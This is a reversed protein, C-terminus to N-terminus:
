MYYVMKKAIDLPAARAFSHREFIVGVICFTYLKSKCKYFSFCGYM